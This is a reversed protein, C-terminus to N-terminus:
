RPELRLISVTHEAHDVKYTIEFDAKTALLLGKMNHGRLRVGHKEPQERMGTRLLGYAARAARPHLTDFQRLVQPALHVTYLQPSPRKTM